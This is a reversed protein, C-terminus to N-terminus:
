SSDVPPAAAALLRTIGARKLILWVTSPALRYGLGALEGDIRRYGWTPNEAALRLVLQRLESATSRRPHATSPTPDLAPNGSGPALAAGHCPRRDSATEWGPVAVPDAGRVCSSRGLVAATQEGPSPARCGRSPAGPDGREKITLQPGAPWALRHGAPLDSVVTATGCRAIMCSSGQGAIDCTVVM